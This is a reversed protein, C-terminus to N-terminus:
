RFSRLFNKFEPIGRISNFDEEDEILKAVDPNIDIAKKLNQLVKEIMGRQAYYCALNYLALTCEEDIKLAEQYAELEKDEHKLYYYAYGMNSYAVAFRPNLSITKRFCKLATEAKEAIERVNFESEDIQTIIAFGKNNWGIPNSPATEIAKDFVKIANEYEKKKALALGKLNYPMFSYENIELAKDYFCIANNLEGKLNYIAGLNVYDKSRLFFFNNSEPIDALVKELFIDLSQPLTNDVKKLKALIENVRKEITELIKESSFTHKSYTEDIRLLYTEPITDLIQRVFQITTSLARTKELKEQASDVQEQLEQYANRRLSNTLYVRSWLYGIFFGCISFYIIVATTYSRVADASIGSAGSFVPSIGPLVSNKYFRLIPEIQTLGVGVLIKTLWDSIQELNTNAKILDSNNKSTSNESIDERNNHKEINFNSEITRPVGFLFGVLGGLLLCGGGVTATTGFLAMINSSCRGINLIHSCNHSVTNANGLAYFFIFIFGILVLIFLPFIARWLELSDDDSLLKDVALGLIKKM